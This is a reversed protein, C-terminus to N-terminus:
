IITLSENILRAVYRSDTKEASAIEDLTKGGFYTDRWAVGKVWKQIEHEPRNFPDNRSLKEHIGDIRVAGSKSRSAIYPIICDYVLEDSVDPLTVDFRQKLTAALMASNITIKLTDQSLAIKRIATAIIGDLDINQRHASIHAIPDYNKVADVDLMAAITEPKLFQDSVTKRVLDEIESAPLRALLGNPHDRYQLLNQSVYYRYRKGAKNTHSPSYLTGESDFLKGTLLCGQKRWVSHNARSKKLKTQVRAWLDQSIIAEHM